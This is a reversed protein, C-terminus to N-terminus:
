FDKLSWADHWPMTWQSPNSAPGVSACWASPQISSDLAMLIGSVGPAPLAWQENWAAPTGCQYSIIGNGDELVNNENNWDVCQRGKGNALTNRDVAWMQSPDGNCVALLLRGQGGGAPGNPAAVCLGSSTHVVPLGRGQVTFGQLPDASNCAALSLLWGATPPPPPSTSPPILPLWVYTMNDLGGPGDNNWRDAMWITTVHGDPHRYPFLFTSQSNFTTPDASPNYNDQWEAGVLSSNPSTVFQAANAAWGTLHSGAAHLTGNVDRMIAQGEMDPGSSVIGTVNRCDDTMQSIGAFKNQVSRILYAKGDGTVDVFTGMDYSDQGDPRFCEGVQTFPGKPSDATLVGVSRMSFSPTDCHFWVTYKSTAPCLFLKPREMRYNPTGPQPAKIDSNKLACGLSTWSGLDTSKYLNFCASCDGDLVKKGQFLLPSPM